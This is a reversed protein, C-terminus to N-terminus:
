YDGNLAYSTTPNTTSYTRYYFGSKPILVQLGSVSTGSLTVFSSSVYLVDDVMQFEVIAQIYEADDYDGDNDHDYKFYENSRILTDTLRSIEGEFSLFGVPTNNSDMAAATFCIHKGLLDTLGSCTAATSGVNIDSSITHNQWILQTTDRVYDEAAVVPYKCGAPCHGYVLRSM